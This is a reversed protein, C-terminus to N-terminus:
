LLFPTLPSVYSHYIINLKAIDVYNKTHLPLLILLLLQTIKISIYEFSAVICQWNKKIGVHSFVLLFISHRANLTNSISISLSPSCFHFFFRLHHFIFPFLHIQAVLLLINQAHYCWINSHVIGIQILTIKQRSMRMRSEIRDFTKPMWKIKTLFNSFM